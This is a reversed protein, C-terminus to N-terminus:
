ELPEIGAKVAAAKPVIAISDLIFSTRPSILCMLAYNVVSLVTKVWTGPCIGLDQCSALAYAICGLIFQILLFLTPSKVRFKDLFGAIITQMLDPKASTSLSMGYTGANYASVISATKSSLLIVMLYNAAVLITSFIKNMCIGLEQCNTLAFVITGLVLQILLFIGPNKVRFKALLAALATQILDPKPNEGAQQIVPVNSM